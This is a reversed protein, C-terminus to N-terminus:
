ASSATSSVMVRSTALPSFTAMVPKPEKSFRDAVRAPHAVRAGALPDLGLLGGDRLEAGAGVELGDHGARLLQRLQGTARRLLSRWWPSGGLLGRCWDVALFARGGLRRGGPAQSSPWAFDVVLLCALLAGALFRPWTSSSLVPWCPVALFVVATSWWCAVAALAGRLLGGALGGGLLRGAVFLV